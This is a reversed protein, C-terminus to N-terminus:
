FQWLSKKFHLPPKWYRLHLRGLHLDTRLGTELFNPLTLSVFMQQVNAADFTSTGVVDTQADGGSSSGQFEVQARFAQWRAAVRFQSRQTWQWTTGNEGARFAHDFGERRLRVAGALDLWDPTKLAASLYRQWKIRPEEQVLVQDPYEDWVWQQAKQIRDWTNKPITKAKKLGSKLFPDDEVQSPNDSSIQGLVQIASLLLFGGLVVAVM